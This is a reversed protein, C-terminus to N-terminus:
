LITMAAKPCTCAMCPICTLILLALSLQPLWRVMLKALVETRQVKLHQLDAKVLLHVKCLQIQQGTSLKLAKQLCVGEHPVPTDYGCMCDYTNPM